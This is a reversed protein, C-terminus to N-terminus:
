VNAVGATLLALTVLTVSLVTVVPVLWAPWDASHSAECMQLDDNTALYRCMEHDFVCIM